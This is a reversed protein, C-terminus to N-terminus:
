KRQLKRLSTARGAGRSHHRGRPVVVQLAEPAPSVELSSQPPILPHNKWHQQLVLHSRLPWVLLEIPGASTGCPNSQSGFVAKDSETTSPKRGCQPDKGTGPAQKIKNWCGVPTSPRAPVLAGDVGTQSGCTVAAMPQTPLKKSVGSSARMEATCFSRSLILM